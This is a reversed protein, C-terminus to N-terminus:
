MTLDNKVKNADPSDSLLFKKINVRRIQGDTFEVYLNFSDDTKISKIEMPSNHQCHSETLANAILVANNRSYVKAILERAGDGDHSQDSEVDILDYCEDDHNAKIEIRM